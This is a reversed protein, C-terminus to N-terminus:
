QVRLSLPCLMYCLLALARTSWFCGLGGSAEITITRPPAMNLNLLGGYMHVM